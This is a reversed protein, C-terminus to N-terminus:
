EIKEFYTTILDCIIAQKDALRNIVIGHKAEFKKVKDEDSLSYHPYIIYPIINLGSFDTIGVINPDPNITNAILVSPGIIISGCSVGIYVGGRQMLSTISNEFHALRAYKLLKFTNGGCVYIIDYKLFDAEPNIELDVFDVTDCGFDLFIQKDLQNFKNNEKDKAATTVIAVKKSELQNLISIVKNKVNEGSFGQSTLIVKGHLSSNTM